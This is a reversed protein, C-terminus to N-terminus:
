GNGVAQRMLANWTSCGVIGDATLGNTAQFFELIEATRNGFYGDIALITGLVVNLADQLVCVYVGLNGRRQLPYGGTPCAPPFVRRDMHVWTPTLSSPEVYSWVGSQIALARMRARAEDGINQACDFSTGAYHQSQMAHGGEGVRRFCYPLYIPEGWMARFTTWAEVAERRSWLLQTQSTGRFEGVLLSGDGFPMPDLLNRDYREMVNYRSNEILVIM